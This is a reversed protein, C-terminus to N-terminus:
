HAYGDDILLHAVTGGSKDNQVARGFGRDLLEKIAALKISESQSSKALNMLEKLAEPGAERAVRRMEEAMADTAGIRNTGPHRAM